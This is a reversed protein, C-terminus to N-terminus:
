KRRMLLSWSERRVSGDRNEVGSDRLWGVATPL